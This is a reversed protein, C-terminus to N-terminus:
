VRRAGERGFLAFATGVAAAFMVAAFIWSSLALQLVGSIAHGSTCGQAIRAGLMMLAAGLFAGAYRTARGDGFRWAWLAPVDEKPRDGSLRSSLWAGLFVGGVLTWEWGIKPPSGEAREASFYSGHELSPSAVGGLLAAAHEFATTIGLPHDATAFAFWSLMGIGAGVAYPSWATRRLAALVGVQAASM